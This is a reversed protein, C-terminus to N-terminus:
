CNTDEGDVFHLSIGARRQPKQTTAQEYDERIKYNGGWLLNKNGKLHELLRELSQFQVKSKVEFAQGKENERVETIIFTRM